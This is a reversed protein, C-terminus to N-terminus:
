QCTLRLLHGMRALMCRIHPFARCVNDESAKSIIELGRRLLEYKEQPIPCGELELLEIVHDELTHKPRNLRHLGSISILVWLSRSPGSLQAEFVQDCIQKAQALAVGRSRLSNVLDSLRENPEKEEADVLLALVRLKRAMSSMTIIVQTMFPVNSLGACDAVSVTGELRLNLKRIISKIYENEYKGECLILADVRLIKDKIVHIFDEELPKMQIVRM